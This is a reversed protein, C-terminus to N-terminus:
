GVLQLIKRVPAFSQRHIESVGQKELAELHQKTPYGKHKALGYGPFISDLELMERDRTVKAIIAAASIASEYLDGKIVAKAPCSLNQPIFKGDILAFDAQVALSEIARQMALLSAQFINLHDIEAVEARGIAYAIAQETIQNYAHERRKETLKKSDTLFQIDHKKPLVVAAAIVAGALPGRGVEDVGAISEYQKSYFNTNKNILEENSM